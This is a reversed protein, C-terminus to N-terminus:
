AKKHSARMVLLIWGTLILLEAVADLLYVPLITDSMVYIVDILIFGICATSGLLIIEPSIKNRYAAALLTISIVIILVGVTKVLWIDVKPGTVKMFSNIDVIPWVGTLFYFIGQGYALIRM